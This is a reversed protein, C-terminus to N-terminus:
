GNTKSNPYLHYAVLAGFGRNVCNKGLTQLNDLMLRLTYQAAVEGPCQLRLFFISSRSSPQTHRRCMRAFRMTSRMSSTYPVFTADSFVSTATIRPSYM